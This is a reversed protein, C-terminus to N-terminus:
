GTPRLIMIAKVAELATKEEMRYLAGAVKEWSAMPVNKLFYRLLAEKKDEETKYATNNKIEDLVAQPVGLGCEYDGLEYWNVVSIMVLCLINYTLTLDTFLPLTSM